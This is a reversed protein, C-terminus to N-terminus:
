FSRSFPKVIEYEFKANPHEALTKDIWKQGEQTLEIKLEELTKANPDKGSVDAIRYFTGFKHVTKIRGSKFTRPYSARVTLSIEIGRRLFKKINEDNDAIIAIGSDETQSGYGSDETNQVLDSDM